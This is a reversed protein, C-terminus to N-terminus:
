RMMIMRKSSEFGHDTTLQMWFIGTGVPHGADNTGAWTVRHEQGGKLEADLLERVQRGTVDYIRLQVHADTALSFRIAAYHHFPNPRAAYLHTAPGALHTDEDVDTPACMNKWLGFPEAGETMWDLTAGLLDAGATVICTSDGSCTFGQCGEYSLHWAGFGLIATRWNSEDPIVQDRVVSAFEWTSSGDGYDLNGVAGDAGSLGLVDYPRQVPCGNGYLTLPLDAEYVAGASPVLYVCDDEVGSYQGFSGDVLTAGFVDHLLEQGYPAEDDLLEAIGLGNFLLARRHALVGCETSRIWDRFFEFDTSEMAGLGYTGLDLLILRYGLAQEVTLGNNGYGGPNYTTGGYSRALGAHWCSPSDLYDFKDYALGLNEFMPTLYYETGRNFADVYLVSPWQIEYDEGPIKRMRPLIEFESPAFPYLHYESAPAGGNYWYSRFYYEISTGPTWISDPLIEQQPRLDPYSGDFGPDNEHFYTLFKYPWVGQSTELSDMLCCVFGEEPDGPLRAKWELYRPILDQAPGKTAIRFCLEVLWRDEEDLVHPGSVGTTDAHWDNEESYGCPSLDLTVNSNGVDLPSLYTPWTQGYGDHFWGGSFQLAVRPADATHTLAIRVNDLIPTGSTNGEELCVTSPIGFSQCSCYVEYTFKLLEWSDPLLNGANGDLTSLNSTELGCSPNDGTYFYTNQGRRFAWHPEPNAESTYPYFMFGHRYFCGFSLVLNNAQDWHVLTTNYEPAVHGGRDVIGSVGMEHQGSPHGPFPYPSNEQDVFELAWGSLPCECAVELDELWQTYTAEDVLGMFNGVGECRGFSYGHEDFEFDAFHTPSGTVGVTINDAAFPGCLCDYFGDEDSWAGDSDVRIEFQVSETGAPLSAASVGGSWTAPADPSGIDGTLRDLEFEGDTVLEGGSDLCLIYLFTYDWDTETDNFYTFDISVDGVPFVPSLANQCFHNGYGMGNLYDLNDAEIEHMGFWVQWESDPLNLMPNCPDDVFDDASVRGVYDDLNETRDISIWGQLDGAGGEGEFDWVGGEVAYGDGDDGGFWVTDGLARDHPAPRMGDQWTGGPHLDWGPGRAELADASGATLCFLSSLVVIAFLVRKM